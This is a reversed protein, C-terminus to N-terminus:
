AIEFRNNPVQCGSSKLSHCAPSSKLVDNLQCKRIQQQELSPSMDCAGAKISTQSPIGLVRKQEHTKTRNSSM